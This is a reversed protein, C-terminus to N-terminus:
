LDEIQEENNPKIDISDFYFEELKDMFYKLYSTKSDPSRKATFDKLDHYKYFTFDNNYVLNSKARSRNVEKKKDSEFGNDFKPYQKEAVSIQKKM